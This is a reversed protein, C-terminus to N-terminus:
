SKSLNDTDPSAREGFLTLQQGKVLKQKAKSRQMAVQLEHVHLQGCGNNVLGGLDNIICLAGGIAFIRALVRAQLNPQNHNRTDMDIWEKAEVHGTYKFCEYTM